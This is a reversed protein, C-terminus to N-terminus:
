RLEPDSGSTLIDHSWFGYGVNGGQASFYPQYALSKWNIPNQQLDNIDGSFGLQYRHNGLGGWRGLVLTRENSGVRKPDTSRVKNLWFTPNVRGGLAGGKTGGQQWDIWFFDLKDETILPNLVQDEVALMLTKNAVSFPVTENASANMGAAACAARYRSENPGVGEADHINAALMLNQSKLWKNLTLYNPLVRQDWTYGTWGDPSGDKIHWNMDYVLVDLPLSYERFSNVVHQIGHSNYNFWRTWWTGWIQKPLMPIVGGVNRYDRLAALYDLGHGFFYWDQANANKEEPQWWGDPDKPDILPTTTDDFLTWGLRSFLAWNCHLQEDHVTLNAMAVETCNLTQVGLADLSKITGPLQGPNADGPKWKSAFSTKGSGKGEISLNDPTFGSASGGEVYVLHLFDTVIETVAENQQVQFSPAAVNRNVFALSARDEFGGSSSSSYELRVLRDTLITFRARGDTSNVVTDENAVPNYPLLEPGVGTVRPSRGGRNPPISRAAEAAAACLVLALTITVGLGRPRHSHKPTAM